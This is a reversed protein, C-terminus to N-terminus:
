RKWGLLEMRGTNHPTDPYSKEWWLLQTDSFGAWRLISEVPKPSTPYWALNYVGSLPHEESEMVMRLSHEDDGNWTATNVWIMERTLDAAIKVGTVPDPLHYLVGQFLTIDFPELEPLEYLDCVRFDMDDASFQEQLFRAQRIWHKRADFGFCRGAGIERAWFSYAGCNCGCDLFSRGELGNPYLALMQAQWQEKLDTLPGVDESYRHGETVATSTGNVDIKVHWPGLDILRQELTASM